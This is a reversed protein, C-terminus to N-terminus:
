PRVRSLAVSAQKQQLVLPQEVIKTESGDQSILSDHILRPYTLHTRVRWTLPSYTPQSPEPAEEGVLQETFLSPPLAM